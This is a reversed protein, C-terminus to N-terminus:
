AKGLSDGLIFGAGCVWLRRMETFPMAVRDATCAFFASLCICVFLM